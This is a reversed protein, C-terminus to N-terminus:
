GTPMWPTCARPRTNELMAAMHAAVLARTPAGTLDDPRILLPM